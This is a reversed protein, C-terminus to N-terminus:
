FKYKDPVIKRKWTSYTHILNIDKKLMEALKRTRKRYARFGWVSKCFIRSYGPFWSLVVKYGGTHLNSHYTKFGNRKTAQFDLPLINYKTQDKISNFTKNNRKKNVGIPGVGYPTKLLLGSTFVKDFFIEGWKHSIEIYEKYTCLDPYLENFKQYSEKSGTVVDYKVRSM